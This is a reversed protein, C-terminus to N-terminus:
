SITYPRLPPGGTVSTILKTFRVMMMTVFVVQYLQLAPETIEEQTLAKGFLLTKENEGLEMSEL